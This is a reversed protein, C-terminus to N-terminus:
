GLGTVTAIPTPWTPVRRVGREDLWALLPATAEILQEDGTAAGCTATALIAPLRNLTPRNPLRSRRPWILSHARDIEGAALEVLAAWSWPVRGVISEFEEVAARAREHDGVQSAIYAKVPAATLRGAAYGSRTVLGEAEEIVVAARGLQDTAALVAAELTRTLALESWLRIPIQLDLAREVARAAGALDGALLRTLPRRGAGWSAVWTDGGDLALSSSKAFHKEAPGIALGVMAALGAAFEIEASAVEPTSRVIARARDVWTEARDLQEREAAEEALLAAARAALDVHDGSAQDIYTELRRRADDPPAPLESAGHFAFAIRNLVLLAQGEIQGQHSRAAREAVDILVRQAWAEDHARFSALGLALDLPTGDSLREVGGGGLGVDSGPRVGIATTLHRSAASWDGVALSEEAALVAWPGIQAGLGPVGVEEARDIAAVALAPMQEALTRDRDARPRDLIEGALRGVLEVRRVRATHDNVFSPIRPSVFGLPGAATLLGLEAGEDFLAWVRAVDLGLVDGVLGAVEAPALLDCLPCAALVTLADALDPSVRQWRARLDAELDVPAVARAGDAVDICGDRVLLQGQSRWHEVVNTVVLPLGDTVETLRAATDGSPRVGTMAQVMAAVGAEDLPALDLSRTLPHRHLRDLAAHAAQGSDLRRHAAVVLLPVPETQARSEAEALLLEIATATTRDAWQLDDLVVVTPEELLRDLLRVVALDGATGAPGVSPDIEAFGFSPTLPRSIGVAAMVQGLPGMPVAVETVARGSLVRHGRVRAQRAVSELLRTKGVGVDGVLAVLRPQGDGLRGLEGDLTGRPGARGVLLAPRLVGDFPRAALADRAPIPPEVTAASAAAPASRAETTEAREIPLRDASAAPPGPEDLPGRGTAVTGKGDPPHDAAATPGDPAREELLIEEEIASLGSSPPLGTEDVFMDRVKAYCRLAQVSRGSHHFARIQAAWFAERFPDEVILREAETVVEDYRELALLTDLRQEEAALRREELGVAAPRVFDEDALDGYAPGSWLGLAEDLLALREVPTLGDAAAVLDQFRDADCGHEPLDFRYGAGVRILRDPGVMRRLRSIKSQLTNVASPPAGDPWLVDMLRDVSVVTRRWVLLAALLRRELRSGLPTGDVAVMGLVTCSLLRSRLVSVM